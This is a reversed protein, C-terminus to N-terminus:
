SVEKVKQRLSHWIRRLNSGLRDNEQKLTFYLEAITAQLDEIAETLHAGFGFEELEECYAVIDNNEREFTITLPAALRLRPDRLAGLLMTEPIIPGISTIRGRVTSMELEDIVFPVPHGRLPEEDSVGKISEVMPKAIASM